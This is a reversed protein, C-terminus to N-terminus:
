WMLTSFSLTVTVIGFCMLVPKKFRFYMFKILCWMWSRKQIGELRKGLRDRRWFLNEFVDRNWAVLEHALNDLAVPLEVGKQWHKAVYDQFEEHLLWAAQFRFPQNRPTAKCLALRHRRFAIGGNSIVFVEILVLERGQQQTREVLESFRDCRRRMNDSDSSREELSMTEDFDGMLLWPKRHDSKINLLRSWLEDRDDEGSRAVEVTVVLHYVDIQIVNMIEKRYLVWIGGTFAIAEARLRGDFGIRGCVKDALSGSLQTEVLVVIAPNHIRIIETLTIMFDRSGAGQINWTIININDKIM